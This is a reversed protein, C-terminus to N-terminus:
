VICCKGSFDRLFKELNVRNIKKKRSVEHFMKHYGETGVDIWMCREPITLPTLGRIEEGSWILLRKGKPHLRTFTNAVEIQYGYECAIFEETEEWRWRDKTVVGVYPIKPAFRLTLEQADIERDEFVVLGDFDLNYYKLLFVGWELSLPEAKRGYLITAEKDYMYCVKRGQSPLPMSLLYEKQRERSWMTDQEKWFPLGVQITRLVFDRSQFLNEWIEYRWGRDWAVGERDIFFSVVTMEEM